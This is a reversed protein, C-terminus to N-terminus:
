IINESQLILDFIQKQEKKIRQVASEEEESSKPKSLTNLTRMRVLFQLFVTLFSNEPSCNTM